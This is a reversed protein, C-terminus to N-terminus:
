TKMKESNNQSILKEDKQTKHTKQRNQTTYDVVNLYDNNMYIGDPWRHDQLM